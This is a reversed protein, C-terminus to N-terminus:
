PNGQEGVVEEQKAKPVLSIFPKAGGCGMRKRIVPSVCYLWMFMFQFGQFQAGVNIKAGQM